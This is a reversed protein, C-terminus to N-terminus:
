QKLTIAGTAGDIHLALTPLPTDAPPHIVAGQQAPDFEAGHCPCVLHQSGPDYDVQCGAHTCTADYAVFQGSNLHILVGPDGSQAITFTIASNKQVASAQAITATNGTAAQTATSLSSPTPSTADSPLPTPPADPTSTRTSAVAQAQGNLIRWAVTAAVLGLTGVGGFLTGLLFNRRSEAVRGVVTRQNVRRARPSPLVSIREDSGSISQSPTGFLLFALPALLTHEQFFDHRLLYDSLLEDVTFLGTNRPGNIFLPLWCFAFVIDPGYFYPYVKWSISLFFILSLLVGFFAAPRLLLGILTGLGIAIEGYAVLLGFLLAHPAASQLLFDRLPSTHAYAILQKGIYGAAGPQFFQPDTLKQVGAYIFTIGLFLRLPLLVCSSRSPARKQTIM